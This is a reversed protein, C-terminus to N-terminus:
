FKVKVKLNPAVIITARKKHRTKQSSSLRGAEGAAGAM